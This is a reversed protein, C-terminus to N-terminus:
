HQQVTLIERRGGRIGVGVGPKGEGVEPSGAGAGASIM